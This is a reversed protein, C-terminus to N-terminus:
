RRLGRTRPDVPREGPPRVSQRSLFALVNSIEDPTLRRAYDAPMLSNKQFLVERLDAKSLLHLDGKAGLIQVSYNDDNRAVGSLKAGDQM